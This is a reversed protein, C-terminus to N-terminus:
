AEDPVSVVGVSRVKVDPVIENYSLVILGPISRETLRKFHLRVPATALVVPQAGYMSSKEIQQSLSDFIMQVLDPDIALYSGQDSDEVSNAIRQELSPNVTIVNIMGEDNQYQRCITRALAQRCANSLVDM